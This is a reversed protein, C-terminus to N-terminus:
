FEIEWGYVVVILGCVEVWAGLMTNWSLGILIGFSLIYGLVFNRLLLAEM